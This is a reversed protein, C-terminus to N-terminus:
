RNPEEAAHGRPLRWRAAAAPKACQPRPCHATVSTLSRSGAPSKASFHPFHQHFPPLAPSTVHIIYLPHNGIPTCFLDFSNSVHFQFINRKEGKQVHGKTAQLSPKQVLGLGRRCWVTHMVRKPIRRLLMATKSEPAVRAMRHGDIVLSGLPGFTCLLWSIACTPAGWNYTPAYGGLGIMNKMM